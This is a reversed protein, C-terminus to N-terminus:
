FAEGVGFHIQLVEDWIKKASMPRPDSPDYVKFGFDVRFPAFSTYYRLGFGAAVAVRNWRFDKVGNWVNGYDVFLASGINEWIQNRTEFSGELWFFGGPLTNRLFLAELEEPPRGEISSPITVGSPVLDRNGWGRVSNSGGATFRQNISIDFKDGKYTHINGVIFKTGVANRPNDYIPLFYSTNLIVKYYLPNTFESNGIKSFLYPIANGNELIIGIRYGWTPFLLNNTNNSNLNVGIITNNTSYSKNEESVNSSWDSAVSDKQMDSFDEFRSDNGIGERFLREIYKDFLRNESHEWNWYTLFGTLYVKQPLDFDLEFRTGFLYQNYNEKRKQLTTYVEFKTNILKGFLFPQELIARADAYGFMNTDSLTPNSIFEFINQAAISTQLTLRRANGLFNKRSYGLSFGINLAEDENNLILEPVIENMLGISTNIQLPVKTGVTDSIVAGVQASSFLNTRYLRIQAANLEYDSYSTGTDIGAVERILEDEVLAQGLGDKKVHIKNVLYYRGPIFNVDVDVVNKVTDIIIEPTDYNFFMFGRDRMYSTIYNIDSQVLRESYQITSDIVYENTAIEVFNSPAKELGSRNYYRFYYPSGEELIFTLHVDGAEISFQCAVECEFFGNIRYFSNLLSIDTPLSLSDFYVKEEGWPTFSNFFKSLWGPSEKVIIVNKLQSSSFFNNGEFSITSLELSNKNQASVPVIFLLIFFISFLLLNNWKLMPFTIKNWMHLLLPKM